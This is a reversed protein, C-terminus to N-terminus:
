YFFNCVFIFTFLIFVLTIPKTMGIHNYHPFKTERGAKTKRERARERGGEKRDILM